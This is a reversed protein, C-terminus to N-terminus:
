WKTRCSSRRNLEDGGYHWNYTYIRQHVSVTSSLTKLPKDGTRRWAMVQVLALTNDLPNNPVFKLSIQIFFLWVKREHFHMQFHRRCFTAMKNLPLHTFGKLHWDWVCLVRVQGDNYECIYWRGITSSWWNSMDEFKIQIKCTNLHGSLDWSIDRCKSLWYICCRARGDIRTCTRNDSVYWIYAISWDWLEGFAGTRYGVICWEFSFHACKQNLLHM